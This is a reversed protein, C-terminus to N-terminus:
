KWTWAQSKRERQCSSLKVLSPRRQCSRTTTWLSLHNARYVALLCTSSVQKLNGRDYLIKVVVKQGRAEARKSLERLATTILHTTQGDMWFNTALFVEKEARAILNSMHRCIDPLSSIVTLPVVGCSGVKSPSCVGMLPDHQLPLLSEHFMQLFLESPRTPGWNGCQYAKELEEATIVTRDHPPATDLLTFGEPHYLKSAAQHPALTPDQALLSSVSESSTCQQLLKDTIHHKSM